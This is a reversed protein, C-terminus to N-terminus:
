GQGRRPALEARVWARLRQRWASVDSTDEQFVWRAVEDARIPLFGSTDVAGYTGQDTLREIIVSDKSFRWIEPVWLAAYVGARDVQPASIGVEIALDPNPYDAVDDSRRARAAAVAALKEPLFFFCQDAEIGRALAPRMWTSRGLTRAPIELVETVVEIFRWAFDSIDEHSHSIPM